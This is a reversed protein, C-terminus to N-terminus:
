ATVESPECCEVCESERGEIRHVIRWGRADPADHHDHHDPEDGCPYPKIAQTDVGYHAAREWIWEGGNDAQNREEAWKWADDGSLGQMLADAILARFRAAIMTRIYELGRQMGEPTKDDLWGSHFSEWGVAQAYLYPLEVALPRIEGEDPHPYLEYAFKRKTQM